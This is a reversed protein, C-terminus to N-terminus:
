RLVRGVVRFDAAAGIVRPAYAENYSLLVTQPHVIGNSDTFDAAEDDAPMHEHYEKIFGEGDCVFVGVEGERVRSCLQVWVLQRDRFVPEMSDGSVYLAFDTGAPVASAPFSQTEFMDDDLFLGTGASAPLQSVPIEVQASGFPVINDADNQAASSPRYLGTAILDERYEHLKRLGEANLPSLSQGCLEHMDEIDLLFCLSLLQYANPVSSGHEWKSIGKDSISIGYTKLGESVDQLKMGCAKRAATLRRGIINEDYEKAGNYMRGVSGLRDSIIKM